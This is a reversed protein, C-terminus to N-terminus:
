NEGKANVFLKLRESNARYNKFSINLFHPSHLKLIFGRKAWSQPNKLEGTVIITKLVRGREDTFRHERSGGPPPDIDGLPIRWEMVLLRPCSWTVAVRCYLAEVHECSHFGGRLLEWRGDMVIADRESRICSTVAYAAGNTVSVVRGHEGGDYDLEVVGEWVNGAFRLATRSTSNASSTMMTMGIVHRAIPRSLEVVIVHGGKKECRLAVGGGGIIVDDSCPWTVPTVSSNGGDFHAVVSTVDSGVRVDSEPQGM